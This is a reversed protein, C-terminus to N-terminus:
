EHDRLTATAPTRVERGPRPTCLRPPATHRRSGSRPLLPGEVDSEGSIRLPDDHASSTTTSFSVRRSPKATLADMRQSWEGVRREIRNKTSLM